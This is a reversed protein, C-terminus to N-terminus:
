RSRRPGCGARTTSHATPSRACWRRGSRRLRSMELAIQGELDFALLQALQRQRLGHELNEHERRAHFAHMQPHSVDRASADAPRVTALVEAGLHEPQHLRLLDLVGHDHGDAGLASEHDSARQGAIALRLLSLHDRAILRQNATQEVDGVVDDLLLDDRRRADHAVVAVIGVEDNRRVLARRRKRVDGICDGLFVAEPQAVGEGGATRGAVVVFFHGDRRAAGPFADFAVEAFHAHIDLTLIEGHRADAVHCAVYEAVAHQLRGVDPQDRREIVLM